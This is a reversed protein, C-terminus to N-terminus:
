DMQLMSVMSRLWAALTAFDHRGQIWHNKDDFVFRQYAEGRGAHKRISTKSGDLGRVTVFRQFQEISIGVNLQKEGVYSHRSCHVAQRKGPLNAVSPRVDADHDSGRPRRQPEIFERGARSKFLLGVTWGSHDPV